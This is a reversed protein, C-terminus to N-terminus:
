WQVARDLDAERERCVRRDRFCFMTETHILKDSCTQSQRSCSNGVHPGPAGIGGPAGAVGQWVCHIYCNFVSHLLLM